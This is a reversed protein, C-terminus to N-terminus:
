LARTLTKYRYFVEKGCIMVMKNVEERYVRYKYDKKLSNQTTEKIHIEMSKTDEPACTKLVQSFVKKAAGSPTSSLYRGDYFNVLSNHVYVKTVTFSRSM